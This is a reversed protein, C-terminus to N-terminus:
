QRKLETVLPGDHAIATPKITAATNLLFRRAAEAQEVSKLQMYLMLLFDEGSRVTLYVLRKFPLAIGEPVDFEWLLADRGDPLKQPASKVELKKGLVKSEIYRAEWDRHARLIAPTDLRGADPSNVFESIVATHVLLLTGDVKFIPRLSRADAGFNVDKGKVELTFQSGAPWYRVLVMGEASRTVRYITDQGSAGVCLLPLALLALALHKRLGM